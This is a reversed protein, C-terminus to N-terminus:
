NRVLIEPHNDIFEAAWDTITYDEWPPTDATYMLRGPTSIMKARSLTVRDENDDMLRQYKYRNGPLTWFKLIQIAGSPLNDFKKKTHRVEEELAKQASQLSLRDDNARRYRSSAGFAIEVLLWATLLSFAPVYYESYKEAFPKMGPYSGPILFLLLLAIWVILAIKIRTKSELLDQIDKVIGM